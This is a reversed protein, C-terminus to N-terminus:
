RRAVELDQWCKTAEDGVLVPPGLMEPGDGGVAVGPHVVGVPLRISRVVSRLVCRPIEDPVEIGADIDPNLEQVPCPLDGVGAHLVEVINGCINCKYVERIKTM